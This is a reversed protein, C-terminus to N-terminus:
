IYLVTFATVLWGVVAALLWPDRVLLAAPDGGRQRLHILYLYRFIGYIVFPVTFVLGRSGVHAVTDPSLTYLTYCILTSPTVVSIMQDLFYLSYHALVDRHGTAENELVLLEHRRKGFALFLSLLFTCILIWESTHVEVALTGGLVRLVFGLAVIMVDIIVIRKLWLSYLLNIFFYLYSVAMFHGRLLSGLVLGASAVVLAAGVAAPRSLRGSAIPRDKKLPHLRDNAADLLDNIIYVGSSILCFAAFALTSRLILAPDTAKEAFVLGAFVLLNKTWQAPRMSKFVLGLLRFFVKLRHARDESEM